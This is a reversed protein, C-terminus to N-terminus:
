YSKFFIQPTKITTTINNSSQNQRIREGEGESKRREGGRVVEAHVAHLVVRGSGNLM